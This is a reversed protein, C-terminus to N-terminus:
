LPVFSLPTRRPKDIGSGIKSLFTPVDGGGFRAGVFHRRSDFALSVKIPIAPRACEVIVPWDPYSLQM